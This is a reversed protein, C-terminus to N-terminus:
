VLDSISLNCWSKMCGDVSFSKRRILSALGSLDFM